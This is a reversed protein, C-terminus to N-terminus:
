NCIFFSLWRLAVICTTVSYGTVNGILVRNGGVLQMDRPHSKGIPVIWNKSSDNENVYLLNNKGEDIVIFEHKIPAAQAAACLCALLFMRLIMSSIPVSQGSCDIGLAPRAVTSCGGAQKRPAQCRNPKSSHEEVIIVAGPEPKHGARPHVFVFM